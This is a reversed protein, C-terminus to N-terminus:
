TIEISVYGICRIDLIKSRAEGKELHRYTCPISRENGTLNEGEKSIMRAVEGEM